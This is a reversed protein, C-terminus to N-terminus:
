PKNAYFPKCVASCLCCDMRFSFSLLRRVRITTTGSPGAALTAAAKILFALFLITAIRVLLDYVGPAKDPIPLERVVSFYEYLINMALM